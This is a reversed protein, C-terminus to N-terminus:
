FLKMERLIKIPVVGRLEGRWGLPHSNAADADFVRDVHDPPEAFFHKRLGIVSFDESWVAVAHAAQDSVAVLGLLPWRSVVNRRGELPVVAAGDRWVQQFDCVGFRVAVVKTAALCETDFRM